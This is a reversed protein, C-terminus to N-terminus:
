TKYHCYCFSINYCSFMFFCIHYWTQYYFPMTNKNLLLSSSTCRGLILFSSLFPQPFLQNPSISQYPSIFHSFPHSLSWFLGCRIFPYFTFLHLPLTSFQNCSIAFLINAFALRYSFTAFTAVQNGYLCNLLYVDIGKFTLSAYLKLAFLQLLQLNTTEHLITM